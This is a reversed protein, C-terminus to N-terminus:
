DRNWVRVERVPTGLRDPLESGSVSVGPPASARGQNLPQRQPLNPPGDREVVGHDPGSLSRVGQEEGLVPISHEIWIPGAGEQGKAGLAWVVSVDAEGGAAAKTDNAAWKATSPMPSAM